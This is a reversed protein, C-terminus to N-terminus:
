DEPRRTVILRNANRLRRCQSCITIEFKAFVYPRIGARRLEDGLIQGSDLLMPIREPRFEVSEAGVVNALRRKASFTLNDPSTDGLEVLLERGSFAPVLGLLCRRRAM